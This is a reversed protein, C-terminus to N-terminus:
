DREIVMLHSLGFPDPKATLGSETKRLRGFRLPLRCTGAVTRRGGCQPGM